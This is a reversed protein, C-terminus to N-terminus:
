TCMKGWFVLIKMHPPESQLAYMQSKVAFSCSCNKAMMGFGGSSATTDALMPSPAMTVADFRDM